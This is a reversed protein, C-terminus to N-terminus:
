STSLLATGHKKVQNYQSVQLFIYLQSYVMVLVLPNVALLALRQFVRLVKHKVPGQFMCIQNVTRHGALHTKNALKGLSGLAQFAHTRTKLARGVGRSHKGM